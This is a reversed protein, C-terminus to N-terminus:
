PRSEGIPASAARQLIPLANSILNLILVCGRSFVANDLKHGSGETLHATAKSAGHLFEALISKEEDTLDVLKQFQGGINKVKVEDTYKSGSKKYSEYSIDEVLIPRQEDDRFQINLGLFYILQRGAMIAAEVAASDTLSSPPAVAFGLGLLKLRNPIHCELFCKREDDSLPEVAVTTKRM